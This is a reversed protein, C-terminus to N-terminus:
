NKHMNIVANNRGNNKATYLAKDALDYLAQMDYAPGCRVIHIGLSVTVNKAVDSKEHPINLKNVTDKIQAALKEADSANEEFWLLAFEEGGIRAAYINRKEALERFMKGIRRLCVDGKLHGYHDNYDKFFDIDM